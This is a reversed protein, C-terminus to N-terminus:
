EGGDSREPPQGGSVALGGAAVSTAGGDQSSFAVDAGDYQRKLHYDYVRGDLTVAFPEWGDRLLDMLEARSRQEGAKVGYIIVEWHPRAM